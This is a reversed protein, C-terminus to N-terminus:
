CLDNIGSKFGNKNTKSYTKCFLFRISKLAWISWGHKIRDKAWVAFWALLHRWIVNYNWCCCPIEHSRRSHSWWSFASRTIVHGRSRRSHPWRQSLMRWTIGTVHGCLLCTLYIHKATFLHFFCWVRHSIFSAATTSGSMGSDTCLFITGNDVVDRILQYAQLWGADVSTLHVLV